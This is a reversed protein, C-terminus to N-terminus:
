FRSTKGSIDKRYQDGHYAPLSCSAGPGPWTGGIAIKGVAPM